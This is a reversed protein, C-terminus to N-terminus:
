CKRRKKRIDGNRQVIEQKIFFCANESVSNTNEKGIYSNPRITINKM